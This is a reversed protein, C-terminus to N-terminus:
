REHFYASYFGFRPFFCNNKHTTGGKYTIASLNIDALHVCLL